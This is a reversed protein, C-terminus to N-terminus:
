HFEEEVIMKLLRITMSQQSKNLSDYFSYLESKGLSALRRRRPNRM